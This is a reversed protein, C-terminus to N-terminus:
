TPRVGVWNPTPMSICDPSKKEPVTETRRRNRRNEASVSTRGPRQKMATALTNMASEIRNMSGAKRDTMTGTPM